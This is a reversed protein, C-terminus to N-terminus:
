KKTAMKNPDKTRMWERRKKNGIQKSGEEEDAGRLHSPYAGGVVSFLLFLQSQSQIQSQPKALDKKPNFLGLRTQLSLSPLFHRGETARLGAAVSGSGARSLQCTGMPHSSEPAARGKAPASFRPPPPPWLPPELPPWLPPRLPPWLPPRSCYLHQAMGSGRM